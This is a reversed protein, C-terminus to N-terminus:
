RQNRYVQTLIQVVADLVTYFDYTGRIRQMNAAGACKSIVEEKTNIEDILPQFRIKFSELTCAIKKM